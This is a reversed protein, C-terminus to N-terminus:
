TKQSDAATDFSASIAPSRDRTIDLEVGGFQQGIAMLQSGLGAVAPASLVLMEASHGEDIVIDRSNQHGNQRCAADTEPSHGHQVSSRMKRKTM